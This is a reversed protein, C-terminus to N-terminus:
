ADPALGPLRAQQLRFETPAVGVHLTFLRTFYAPDEYGVRSAVKGVPLLGEALLSQALSIRTELIYSLPSLGTSERVIRRLDTLSVGAAKARDSMALPRFATSKLAALVQRDRGMPAADVVGSALFALLLRQTAVSAEISGRLGVTSLAAHLEVFVAAVREPKAHLGTVPRGPDLLGLDRYLQVGAGTFLVWHETWGDGDPGYTHRVGPPVSILAPARVTRKPERPEGEIYWGTGSSIYVM